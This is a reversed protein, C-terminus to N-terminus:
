QVYKEKVRKNGCEKRITAFVLKGFREPGYQDLGGNKTKKSIRASQREPTLALTGSYWFVLFPPNSWYPGSGKSTYGNPM